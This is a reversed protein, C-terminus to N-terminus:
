EDGGWVGRLIFEEKYIICLKALKKKRGSFMKQEEQGDHFTLIQKQSNSHEFCENSDNTLPRHLPNRELKISFTRFFTWFLYDYLAFYVYLSSIQDLFFFQVTGLLSWASPFNARFFIITYTRNNLVRSNTLILKKQVKQVWIRSIIGHIYENNWCFVYVFFLVQDLFVLEFKPFFKWFKLGLYIKPINM